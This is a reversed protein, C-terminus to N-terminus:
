RDGRRRLKASVISLGRKMEYTYAILTPVLSTEPDMDQYELPLDVYDMIGEVGDETICIRAPSVQFARYTGGDDTQVIAEYIGSM